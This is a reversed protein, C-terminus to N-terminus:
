KSGKMAMDAAMKGTLISIPVGAPSYTWQGAQYVNAIPTKVSKAVDRFKHVVPIQPNTFSWGVIAGDTNSTYREVTLPTSSFQKVINNEMEPYLRVMQEIILTEMFLKFEKKWGQDVIKKTLQYDFLLSVEMGTEGKPALSEDRLVPISIELTNYRVLDRLYAKISEKDDGTYKVASLGSKEPTYFCHETAIGRFYEPDKDISLYTTFVSEAGSLDKLEERRKVIEEKLKTNKLHETDIVKYLTKLDCAWILHEYYHTNGYNDVVFKEEPDIKVIATKLNLEAGKERCYEELKKPLMETGGIPYNYDNYLSFYSLAFSTPTEKFFHQAINDILEPNDSFKQLYPYIPENLKEIKRITLLFKFLWPLLTKVLYGPDKMLDMFLPNDIGYLVDMYRTIKKIEKIIKKISIEENPFEHLLFDQYEDISENGSLRLVSNGVVLSVNSKVFEMEIGLQKLMPFVIGSNEISRLGGDFVYDGRKFSNVLGGFYFIKEFLSVRKGAKALYATATLGAM